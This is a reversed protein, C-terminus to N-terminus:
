LGGLFRSSLYGAAFNVGVAGATLIGLNILAKRAAEKDKIKENIDRVQAVYRAEDAANILGRERLGKFYSEAQAGLREVSNLLRDDKQLLEV